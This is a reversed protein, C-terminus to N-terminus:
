CRRTSEAGREGGGERWQPNTDRSRSSCHRASLAAAAWRMSRVRWLGSLDSSSSVTSEYGILGEARAHAPRLGVPLLCRQLASLRATPSTVCVGRVASRRTGVFRLM